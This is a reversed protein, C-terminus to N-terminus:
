KGIQCLLAVGQLIWFDPNTRPHIGLSVNLVFNSSAGTTTLVGARVHTKYLPCQYEDAPPKYNVIPTFHVIPLKSHMEGPFAESLCQLDRDWRAGDLFLGNIYIGDSPPSIVDEESEFDLVRFGFNLTDIPIQYKRAHLQLAGTMFGQPFFFGPLWFCKPEGNKIWTRMFNIRKHFDKVWSSLPKLSPYSVATWLTPVQNNLFSTFMNELESSMVVLGKIARQLEHLTSKMVNLLRNFRDCEQMLVVALPSIQGDPGLVSTSKGEVDKLLEPLGRMIEDAVEAVIQDSSKVGGGSTERPQISAVTGLIKSSENLQFTLNANEHMGFVDPGEASPLSKIYEVYAIYRGEPQSIYIKSPTFCYTDSLVDPNYFRRLTSMLCRRDLDDIVRGGYTIEGTVYLLAPWPIEPQEQLFMRLTQLACDLDSNNFDYRVNWGLPGFKRREQLVAHFFSIAFVLKKWPGKKTCSDLIEDSYNAYSQLLNARVGKPPENTIKIGNQLVPVPFEKCPFSTLWLRFEPHIEAAEPLFREIIREMTQMWSSALHCNQLCVWDGTKRSKSVLMEAIPGQGQGLSIIHLREGPKRDVREGFRQLIGTPDAGTSLIFIIPTTNSTDKFVEELQLPISGVFQSGLNAKIFVECAYVFKEERLCKLLVLRQFPELKKDWENPLLSNHPEATEMFNKWGRLDNAINKALGAFTDKSVEELACTTQWVTDSIWKPAPNPTREQKAGTAASNRLLFNWESERIKGAARMISTCILLSFTLKHEEFLGRSVNLYLFETIFNILITLRADLEDTKESVDICHNFLQCFFTLSYQYMTDILALDSIVFYLISGRNAVVRYQERAATIEKETIEAQKVRGQIVSSTLKSNNLTNILVEDDLINGQSEKLLKLIKDELDKLQKKDSSISVVLRDNQEELDAREKRVVDGLLQDELGKMTVTFNVLTVKICVDPMYHPNSLKTTMYLRFNPDYDVDTDGLRIMFQGNKQFIQKQLVPELAPDLNDGIDELLVPNGIRISSEITRLLNSDSLKVVRLGNKAEMAKIWKNAQEQPDIMLPWRKGRTVLIGNDVSVDDTPLGWISWERVEVATSLIGRLSYNESVPIKEEQFKNVWNTVLAIRYPGSFAGYYSICAACLFVDGILLDSRAGIADATEKWRVAEDGLASTLKEARVLRSETVLAQELLRAQEAQTQELNKKLLEVQAEVDSLQKQKASLKEAAQKLAEEAQRLAEKKPAVVRAVKGYVDMARVWMCLSTAANSQKQVSEPTLSPDEIYKVLKKQIAQTIGDKNYELLRKIFSVDGMIKKSTDWDPKESLLVCVAEMVMQVLPPPKAFSKIETIDNKNLSNLAEVAANLAPMAADLDKQADDKMLQTEAAQKKVDAEEKEVVDKVKQAAEQDNAVQRVLKDTKEAKEALVPQLKGLEVKMSEILVNTEKLKNLGNLFRDQATYLDQRKEALLQIYLNVCDLYSKPTIYYKRRLEQCFRDAMQSVSIHIYVCMRALKEQIEKTPLDVNALFYNSVSLLAEEPWENFWDITCCNILSPFQRCRARLSDGIPSMCLVVHLNDRARNIFSNYLVDKTEPLGLKNVYERMEGGVRDKEDPTFLGPVEGSNLLNNIDEVFGENIIQTDTLLFTVPIGEVGAIKYLKKLDERFDVMNYGKRLEIQFCKYEGIFCAFRTLSQKGSGGVGILMANGRPQRLIRSLRSIHEIADKFFVLRMISTTNMNYDELYDNFLQPVKGEDMVQEYRRDEISYGPRLYDGYLIPKAFAEEFTGTEEFGRKLLEYLMMKFYERDEVNILRDHFVHMCEHIWLNRLSKKTGCDAPKVMLMGQFVKSVDRLNFTYHSKAPTPLLEQSIRMYVEITSEVVPKLFTKCESPFLQLFGGFIGGFITRLCQESPPQVCVMSFHRFFRPSVENRGGGPPACAALLTMDEIDKWFLLKRDYFGQFDQFQRLLEIPPQAGYREKAPMNVDDVFCAIRKGVPAGLKTKRKKELKGELAEQTAISTTQASFNLVIPMIDKSEQLRKLLDLVIASKGVGSVGQFLISRQVELCVEVLFSMRTSDITPVMLTFFPAGPTYTFGPVLEEWPSFMQEKPNFFYEYVTDSSPFTAIIELEKRMFTDFKEQSLRNINGGVSWIFSFSFLKNLVPTLLELEQQFAVERSPQCLAEFYYCLTSVVNINVSPINEKCEQRLFKLGSDVYTDFLNWIYDIVAAANTPGTVSVVKILRKQLWTMVYPRWGLDEPPVYVMGCRSVTAPSAVALDQVEFLMRMTVPNLKIREGNPLCLVCNDDLVTNMNEIWVADVPGDFIVWKRDLTTDAVCQRIITSALGDTWENTLMNYEGYLEGMKICKPNLVYTHTVQFAPNSSGSLRLKTMAAQLIQYCTTKGGGTPGVEMVGFRVNMTEYLQIIKIVFEPVPQLGAEILCEEVASRLMGFDQAPISAGPFLDAIIALFLGVDQSLFKPLNSDKFARILVIDENLSPNSRKLSGAMVLVSKVARMGFDYHDQQSLQESSLKYLKVMKRSLIKANAFGESFLMVEAVLAYDPIMMSVPRFLVKLNDPLETRGAYGPNMTIFVGCTPLLKIERGEFNFRSMSSKLANQVTLLQQAVVSLVEIDIRNFEDFCAWAGCQALGAFFKGMFKYDLNEGCNFVVCQVGLAKALDKTTETKGTGAPGAPAGGLKLHLAGTLTMYCRDTLPTIVLRSQAGLYEYGYVFRANTQRVISDDATDDWYYRLQMQWGFETTKHVKDRILDEIIDRAHVDITILATLIRRELAHLDSRVLVSLDALQKVCQDKYTSLLLETNEEKENELASEVSHCWYVQSIMLVLQAPHKLVWEKRPRKVYDTFAAKSMRRLSSIMNQEVSTLWNEVNGRAKLNKGLSVKEEESSVMAFIDISRPDDGFDLRRIGDFCKSMHPQVAQVNRTQALIELLEDNSLFYFRPFAMRKTELYDELNKQIMELTENSKQFTELWGHTLGAQLANPRDHVRKMIDKLQKDVANFAKSENPLQRQIDPACFICELYMWQKQCELWEDLVRGFHKLQNELKEVETRIGAVYRSSTVTSMTVMSDELAAVVDDVSGLVYVDKIEKYGKTMFDITTWKDQVSQLLEELTAEQTAENSIATIAPKHEM